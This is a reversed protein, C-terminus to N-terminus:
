RCLFSHSKTTAIQDSQVEALAKAREEWRAAAIGNQLDRELDREKDELRQRQKVLSTEPARALNLKRDLDQIRENQQAATESDANLEDEVQQRVRASEQEAIKEREGTLEKAIGAHIALAVEREQKRAAARSVSPPDGSHAETELFRLPNPRM